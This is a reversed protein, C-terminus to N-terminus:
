LPGELVFRLNVTWEDGRLDSAERAVRPALGRGAPPLCFKLRTSLVPTQPLSIALGLYRSPPPLYILLQVYWSAHVPFGCLLVPLRSLLFSAWRTAGPLVVLSPTTEPAQTSHLRPM